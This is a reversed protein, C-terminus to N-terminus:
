PAPTVSGPRSERLFVSVDLASVATIAAVVVIATSLTSADAVVGAIVAGITFGLDRWLRYVGVARGRWSPHALDGVAALLTPYAMATGAGFLASGVAWADISDGWAILLLGLAETAQGGAILWKRGVRDSLAGTFLQGVGWVAPAIAVLVGITGLDLGSAAFFLPFVGWAAGENLNNVLGARSTAALSRDAWSGLRFVEAFGRGDIDSGVEHTVHGTTERVLALSLGLGLTVFVVGLLFPAPRLGANEAIVGTLWATIAVAGYGAAENFGMATGRREPGVLDIKMIVTVSWALGQNVGLLVNAAVIGSWTPAFMLLLPVPIGALWGAILVPKRGYRDALGGAALNVLAKTLGFAAIFTLAATAGPLGFEVEALLPLVTREQGILGGVLANVAVLLAFQPLNQRLGLQTPRPDTM